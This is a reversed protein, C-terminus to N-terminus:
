VKICLVEPVLFNSRVNNYIFSILDTISPELTFLMKMVEM